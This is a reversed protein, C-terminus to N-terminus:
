DVRINAKKHERTYTICMVKQNLLYRFVFASLPEIGGSTPSSVAIIMNHTWFHKHARRSFDKNRDPTTFVSTQKDNVMSENLMLLYRCLLLNVPDIGGSIPFSVAAFWKHTYAPITLILDFTEVRLTRMITNERTIITSREWERQSFLYM